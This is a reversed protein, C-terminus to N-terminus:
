YLQGVVENAGLVLKCHTSLDFVNYITCSLQSNRIHSETSGVTDMCSTSVFPISNNFYFFPISQQVITLIIWSSKLLRNVVFLSIRCYLRRIGLGRKNKPFNQLEIKCQTTYMLKGNEFVINPQEYTHIYM